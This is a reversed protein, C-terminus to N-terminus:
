SQANNNATNHSSNRAAPVDHNHKGEYTTIVAKPDTSAREVHKRVNCGASTCKYYSRPHPNGKVVKQGYKRWRYGDDLLDVESRTQVIIKPETVTKHSLSVESAGADINRRKANPEDADGEDERVEEDVVEESDSSGPVQVPAGQTSEHDRKHMLQSPVTENSRHLQGATRNQSNTESKPQFNANGNMDGGGDKARKGPQPMEHNHMGKYIIETIQGDPSREVKKKVPCNSHTCKYYSRPFESGKVQKQGYKRWNFGDDAPKDTAPPPTQYKRDSHSPGSAEAASGKPESTSPVAQQQSPETKVFSPELTQTETSAPVLSPKYEAQLPMHSQALAAQATVQALAQQHSMGFPSPPSFFGPSNLLGSPSLGPPVMFLPSLPSNAVVLNMPRSQKFGSDKDRGDGGKSYNDVPNDFNFGPRAASAALPSAIAGALLQTFSRYDSDPNHDSFFRSVLTLPGPSAGAGGGFFSDMTPRPPLTLPPRAASPPHSPPPPPPVAAGSFSVREPDENKAM